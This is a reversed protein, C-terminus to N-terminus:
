GGDFRMRGLTTYNVGCSSVRRGGDFGLTSQDHQQETNRNQGVVRMSYETIKRLLFDFIRHPM